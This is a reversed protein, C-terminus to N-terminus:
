ARIGERRKRRRRRVSSASELFLWLCALIMVIPITILGLWGTSLLGMLTGGIDSGFVSCSQPAAENVECGTLAALLATLLILAMPLMALTLATIAFANRTRRM